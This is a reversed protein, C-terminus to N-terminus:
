RYSFQNHLISLYVTQGITRTYARWADIRGYGYTNNPVQSGPISGCDQDSTLPLASERIIKEIADVQGHLDPEASILLAALGAVHPAAMSTGSSTSYGGGLASSLVSVGPASVDPKLRDSGDITVPGRSSFGAIIDSSDTAGVTFSADYIAAPTDVSGCNSGSNGASHVTLIGAASLNEVVTLLVQPDTCGESPPCSWSNNVVDPALDPRPNGGDLDTPAMFWQYCESYSAPSGLGENMNRCGIWRAGPAMGVQHDAGDDGVMTGMTHTGHGHDDCPELSDAGCDSGEEHIADHWNYNHDAAAGDWGRYQVKLAPHEWDYGTDQGGIVVGQGTFGEQWVLPANVHQINWEISQVGEEGTLPDGDELPPLYPLPEPANFRVQPNAYIHSVDPRQALAQILEIDGRVWIMNAIWFSRFSLAQSELSAIIPKQTSAALKTLQDYTYAGKQLKSKLHAAASLDAQQDLFILFEAQGSEARSLVWPDVNNQWTPVSAQIPAPNIILLLLLLFPFLHTLQKKM